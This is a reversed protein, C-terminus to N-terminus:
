LQGWSTRYGFSIGIGTPLNRGALPIQTAVDFTGPGVRWGATPVLQVLRRRDSELVLGQARPPRGRLADLGLEWTFARGSAGIAAHAFLEDGPRRAAREHEERWRYGAWGVVYLSWLGLARGSELSLEWDRQGETLPLVTADVPFESAPIKVGARVAIPWDAGVLASGFRAAIRIDGIGISESGGSAANVALRHAPVQAWLDLGPFVGVAATAFISQTTFSADALFDQRAGRSNFFETYRQGLVSVQVWGTGPPLTRISGNQTLLPSSHPGNCVVAQAPASAAAALHLAFGASVLLVVAREM